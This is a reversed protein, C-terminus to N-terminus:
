PGTTPITMAGAASASGPAAMPNLSCSPGAAMSCPTTELDTRSFSPNQGAFWAYLNDWHAWDLTTREIGSSTARLIAMSERLRAAHEAQLAGLRIWGDLALLGALALGAAALRGRPLPQGRWSRREEKWWGGLFGSVPRTARQWPRTPGPRRQDTRAPPSDM